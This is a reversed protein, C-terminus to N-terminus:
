TNSRKAMQRSPTNSTEQLALGLSPNTATFTGRPNV